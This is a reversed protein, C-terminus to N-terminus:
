RSRRLTLKATVVQGGVTADAFVTLSKRKALKTKGARTLKVKVKRAKGAPISFRASGYVATKGAAARAGAARARDLLRLLGNCTTTMRCTLRIQAARPVLQGLARITLRAPEPQTGGDGDAQEGGATGEGSSGPPYGGDPDQTEDGLGDRDADAEWVGQLLLQVGNLGAVDVRLSRDTLAPWFAAGAPGQPDGTSTAPIPTTADLVTLGIQDFNEIGQVGAPVEHAGIWPPADPLPEYSFDGSNVYQQLLTANM